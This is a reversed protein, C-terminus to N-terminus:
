SLVNQHSGSNIEAVPFREWMKLVKDLRKVTNQISYSLFLSMSYFQSALSNEFPWVSNNVQDREKEKRHFHTRFALPNFSCYHPSALAFIFV